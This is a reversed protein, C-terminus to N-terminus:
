ERSAGLGLRQLSVVDLPFRLPDFREAVAAIVERPDDSAPVEHGYARAIAGLVRGPSVGALRVDEVRGAGNRRKSLRPAPPEREPRELRLAAGDDDVLMPVHTFRPPSAGLLEHLLAQRPASSALDAGRVVESIGMTADDVVVALQYSFVGDGRRLVFDECRQAAPMSPPVALRLAPPRKFARQEMGFRRCQGNYRPGEEGLHPASAARAIEARSCDCAYTLGSRSLLELAAEYLATRESQRYPGTAGGIRPGEDGLLDLWALDDHLSDEADRLVRPGDLDEIRLVLAGGHHRAGALAFM